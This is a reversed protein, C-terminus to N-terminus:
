KNLRKMQATLDKEIDYWKNWDVEVIVKKAAFFLREIIKDAFILQKSWEGLEKVTNVKDMEKLTKRHIQRARGLLFRLTRLGDEGVVVNDRERHAYDLIILEGKKRM